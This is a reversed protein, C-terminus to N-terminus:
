FVSVTGTLPIPSLWCNKKKTLNTHICAEKIVLNHTFRDINSYQMYIIIKDQVKATVVHVTYFHFM